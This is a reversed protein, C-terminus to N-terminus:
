YSLGIVCSILASFCFYQLALRGKKKDYFYFASLIVVINATLFYVKLWQLQPVYSYVVALVAVNLCCLSAVVLVVKEFTTKLRGTNDYVQRFAFFGGGTLAAIAYFLMSLELKVSLFYLLALLLPIAHLYGVAERRRVQRGNNQSHSITEM